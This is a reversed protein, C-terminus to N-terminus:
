YMIDHGDTSSTDFTAEAMRLKFLLNKEEIGTRILEVGSANNPDKLNALLVFVKELDSMLRASPEDLPRRRIARAEAVLSRSLQRELTLDVFADRDTKMNMLAVFLARSKRLYDNLREDTEAPEPPHSVVVEPSPMTEHHLLPGLRIFLTAAVLIICAATAFYAYAPRLVLATRLRQMVDAAFTKRRSRSQTASREISDVFSRWFAEDRFASPPTLASVDALLKELERLERTCSACTRLHQDIERRAEEHLEEKVLDYLSRRVIAHNM